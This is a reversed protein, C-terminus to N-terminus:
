SVIKVKIQTKLIIRFTTGNDIESRLVFIRGNHYEEIIRKSLSLGLGWGRSKTTFGPKFVTKFKRKPMGKGTDSFDILINNRSRSIEIIIIGEGTMADLANKCINEIVWSFLPKSLPYLIPENPHYYRFTIRDPSRQRIYDISSAIEQVIDAIPTAPKSGIKSFRETISQLRVVDKELEEVLAQECEQMKLMEAIALLSSIPTGLQHATEKSLGVWVQNQESKQSVSLAFYAMGIFILIIGLQIYPYYKLQYLITTDDYYIYQKDGDYLDLVIPAYNTKMQELRKNIYKTDSIKSSDINNWFKIEQNKNVIIVPITTNNEMFRLYFDLNIDDPEAANIREYIETWLVIKQQEEIKLDGVLFNTYFLSTVGIVIACIFLLKSRINHTTM